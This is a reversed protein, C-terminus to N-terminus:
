ICFVPLAMTYIAWLQLKSEKPKSFCKSKLNLKARSLEVERPVRSLAWPYYMLDRWEPQCETSSCRGTRQSSQSKIINHIGLIRTTKNNEWSQLKVGYIYLKNHPCLILLVGLCIALTSSSQLKRRQPEEVGWKQRM